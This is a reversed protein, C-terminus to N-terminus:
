MKSEKSSKIFCAAPDTIDIKKFAHKLCVKCICDACKANGSTDTHFWQDGDDRITGHIDICVSNDDKSRILSAIRVVTKYFRLLRRKMRKMSDNNRMLMVEIGEIRQGTPDDIDFIVNSSRRVRSSLLNDKKECGKFCNIIQKLNFISLNGEHWPNLSMLPVSDCNLFDGNNIRFVDPSVHKIQDANDCIVRALSSQKIQVLQEPKFTAPHEYWFRDGERLRQFQDVLLCQVTPGVRGGDVPPELLGGVWLDINAPHGYLHRLKQRIRQSKIVPKLETWSEIVSFDLGCHLRWQVYSMLGHDRGRQINLAGLDSAVAHAVDFLKETLEDNM